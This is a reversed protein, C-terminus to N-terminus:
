AASKKKGIVEDYNDSANPGWHHVSYTGDGDPKCSKGTGDKNQYLMTGDPWTTVTNGNKDTQTIGGDATVKTDNNDSDRTGWSHKSGDPKQVAGASGDANETKV